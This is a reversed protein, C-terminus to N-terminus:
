WHLPDPSILFRISRTPGLKSPCRNRSTGRCFPRHTTRRNNRDSLPLILWSVGLRWFIAPASYFIASLFYGSGSSPWPCIVPEHATVRAFLRPVQFTGAVHSLFIDSRTPHRYRLQRFQKLFDTVFTPVLESLRQFGHQPKASQASCKERMHPRAIPPYNSKSLNM